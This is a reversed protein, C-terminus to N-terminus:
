IMLYVISASNAVNSSFHPLRFVGPSLRAASRLRVHEPGVNLELIRGVPIPTIIPNVGAPL